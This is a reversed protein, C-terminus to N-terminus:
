VRGSTEWDPAMVEETEVVQVDIEPIEYTKM